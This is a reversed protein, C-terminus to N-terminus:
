KGGGFVVRNIIWWEDKIKMFNMYEFYREGFNELRIKASAANGSVDVYYIEFDWKQDIEGSDFRALYSVQDISHPVESGDAFYTRCERHIIKGLLGPDSNQHGAFFFVRLADEIMARDNVEQAGAFTSFVVLVFVLSAVWSSASKM